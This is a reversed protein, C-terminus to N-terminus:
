MSIISNIWFPRALQYSLLSLVFVFIRWEKKSWVPRWTNGLLPQRYWGLKSHENQCSPSRMSSEITPFTHILNNKWQIAYMKLFYDELIGRSRLMASFIYSHFLRVISIHGSKFERVHRCWAAHLFHQLKGYLFYWHFFYGFFYTSFM